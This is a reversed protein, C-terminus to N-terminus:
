ALNDIMTKLRFVSYVMKQCFALAFYAYFLIIFVLFYVFYAGFHIFYVFHHM